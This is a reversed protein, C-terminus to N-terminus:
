RIAARLAEDYQDAAKQWTFQEAHARIRGPDPEALLVTRLGDVLSTLDNPEVLRGFVGESHVEPIGGVRSAVVPRGSAFAELIVNPVGENQSPLCLLDAAQLHRAVGQSDQRGAFVIGEATGLQAALRQAEPLLPGGGVLVLRCAALAPESRLRAHAAILLLPNKIPYFNGIFLIIKGETPLQLERRAASAEGPTFCALDIGNYIPRAQNLGVGQLLRALDASRTIISAARPLNRLMIRRRIPQQLYQHADSGQAIAVFPFDLEGALEAVACCDPFLWSALVVDFAGDRHLGRLRKRLAAAMLRHNWRSGIKPVYLTPVYRPFFDVDEARGHWVRAQWPLVPRPALVEIEWRDALHHLLTANDLGRYPEGRDPFLNSLFLLKM